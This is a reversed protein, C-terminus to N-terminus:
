LKSTKYIRAEKLDHSKSYVYLFLYKFTKISKNM